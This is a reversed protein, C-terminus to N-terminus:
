QETSTPELFMNSCPEIYLIVKLVISM